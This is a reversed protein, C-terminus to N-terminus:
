SHKSWYVASETVMADMLVDNGGHPVAPLMQCDFALAIKLGGFHELMGDYFGRGYGLRHGRADFAVGPVIAIDAPGGAETRARPELIGLKGPALDREFDGIPSPQYRRQREDYSPVHVRKGAAIWGRVLPHTQVENGHSVYCFITRADCVAPLALLRAAILRSCRAVEDASLACRLALAQERLLRKGAAIHSGAATM